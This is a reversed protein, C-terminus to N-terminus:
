ATDEAVFRAGLRRVRLRRGDSGTVEAAERSPDLTAARAEFGPVLAEATIKAEDEDALSAGGLGLVWAAGALLLVAALSGLLMAWNM